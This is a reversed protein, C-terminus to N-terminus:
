PTAPGGGRARAASLAAEMVERIAVGARQAAERCDEFEPAFKMRGGPLVGAKVRVAGYATEVEVTRRELRTRAVEYRRVGLTTTERFLIEEFRGETGPPCLCAALFGTRGKKMGAPLIWVDLAGAALLTETLPPLLEPSLDDLNTEVVVAREGTAPSATEGVFIRLLNPVAPLDRDGAGYGVRDYTMPPRNGFGKSLAALLACGTPTAIEGEVDIQVTPMGKLIEVSAPPPVPLTGHDCELFGRGVSVPSAHVEEVGLAHLGAVSGVVDVATDALGIEHFHVEDSSVGHVAAEAERLRALVARARKRVTEPLPANRVREELASPDRFPPVETEIVVDVKTGALAGKRVRKAELRVGELGLPRLVAELAELPLGADVLAGLIMDGAVGAFCDFYAIRTV